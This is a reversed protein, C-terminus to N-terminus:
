IKEDRIKYGTVYIWGNKDPGAITSLNVPQGSKSEFEMVLQWDENKGKWLTAVHNQDAYKMTVAYVTGDSGVTMDYISGGYPGHDTVELVDRFKGSLRDYRTIVGPKGTDEGWYIAEATFAVATAQTDHMREWSDGNDISRYVGRSDPGDGFSIWVDDTYPDVAVRHIHTHKAQPVTFVAKWVTRIKDFAWVTNTDAHNRPGYEGVFYDGKKNSALSWWIASGAQITKIKEFEQMEMSSVYIQCAQDASKVDNDTSVLVDGTQTVHIGQISEPLTNVHEIRNGNDVVRYLKHGYSGLVTGDPSLTLNRLVYDVSHVDGNVVRLQAPLANEETLKCANISLIALSM